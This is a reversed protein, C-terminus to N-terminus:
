GTRTGCGRREYLDADIPTPYTELGREIGDSGGAVYSPVRPVAPPPDPSRFRRPPVFKSCTPIRVCAGHNHVSYMLNRAGEYGSGFSPVLQHHLACDPAAGPTPELGIYHRATESLMGAQPTSFVGADGGFLGPLAGIWQGPLHAETCSRRWWATRHGRHEQHHVQVDPRCGGDDDTNFRMDIESQGATSMGTITRRVDVGAAILTVVM